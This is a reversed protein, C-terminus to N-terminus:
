RATGGLIGLMEPALAGAGGTVPAANRYIQSALWSRVPASRDIAFGAAAAPNQALWTLGLPNVNGQMMARPQMVKLANVLEAQQALLPVVQPEAIGTQQRLGSAIGKEAATQIAPKAGLGFANDGLSKYISQKIKNAVSVPVRSTNNLIPHNLFKTLTSQITAIDDAASLNTQTKKVLDSLAAGVAYKDVMGTSKDLVSQIETELNGIKGKLTEVGSRSVPVGEKLLTTIAQDAKGSALHKASPKLAGQMLWKGAGQMVPAGVAAGVQGGMMMPPIDGLLMRTAVGAGAAIPSGPGLKESLYDVVAGGTENAFKAVGQGYDQSPKLPREPADWQVQSRDIPEDWKVQKPDIDAM